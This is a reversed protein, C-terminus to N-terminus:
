NKLLNKSESLKFIMPVKWDMSQGLLELTSPCAYVQFALWITCFGKYFFYVGKKFHM